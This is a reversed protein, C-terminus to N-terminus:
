EETKQGYRTYNGSFEESTVRMSVGLTNEHTSDKGTSTTPSEPREHNRANERVTRRQLVVFLSLFPRPRSRRPTVGGLM